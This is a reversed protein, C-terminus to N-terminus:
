AAKGLLASEKMEAFIELKVNSGVAFGGAETLANWELGFDFRNINGHVEFAAINSGDMDKASGNYLVRLAIEKTVGRITIDGTLEYENLSLKKFSKSVFTMKPHNQADFFDPSKLHGDRMANNTNISNVDAEFTLRADTFDENDSVIAADFNNFQGTVTSVVLHKVKFKVESHISDIKWTKM